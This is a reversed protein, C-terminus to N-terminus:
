RRDRSEDVLGCSELPWPSTKAPLHHVPVLGQLEELRGADLLVPGIRLPWAQRRFAFLSLSTADEYDIEQALELLEVSANERPVAVVTQLLQRATVERWGPPLQELAVLQESAQELARPDSIVQVAAALRPESALARALSAYDGTARWHHYPALAGLPDLRCAVELVREARADKLDALASGALLYFAAVGQSQRAAELAQEARALNLEQGTRGAQWAAYLPHSGDFRRARTLHADVAADSIGQSEAGLALEWERLALLKPVLVLLAVVSIATVALRPVASGSPRSRLDWSGLRPGATSQVGGVLVVLLVPFAAIPPSVGFASTGLLGVLGTLFGVAHLVDARSPRGVVDSQGENAGLEALTAVGRLLDRLRCAAWVVAIVSVVVLGMSGTEYAIQLPLSHPDVVVESAPNVGPRPELFRHLTWASSGVGHGLWPQAEIGRLAGEAYVSRAALSSDSGQVIALSRGTEANETLQQDAAGLLWGIPLVLYLVFAATLLVVLGSRGELVGNLGGRGARRLSLALGLAFLAQLALGAGGTFSGSFWLAAAAFLGALGGVFRWMGREFTVVVAIPLLALLVGALLNHHGLPMAAREHGELLRGRLAIAAVVVLLLSLARMARRRAETDCFCREVFPVLLLAFPLVITPVLGARSVASALTAAGAVVILLLPALWRTPAVGLRLPDRLHLSGLQALALVAVCGCLQGLFTAGGPLTGAGLLFLALLGVPLWWAPRARDRPPAQEAPRQKDIM